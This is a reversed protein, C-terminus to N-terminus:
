AQRKKFHSMVALGLGILVAALLAFSVAGMTPVGTAEFLVFAQDVGTNIWDTGPVTTSFVADFIGNIPDLDGVEWFAQDTEGTTNTFLEIWYTGADLAVPSLILDFEYEQVGFLVVGTPTATPTGTQSSIMAGPLGGSDTHFMVTYDWNAFSDGPFYGGWWMVEGVDAAAALVFNDAISQAGTPCAGCDGDNFLGNSANPPQSILVGDGEPASGTQPPNDTPSLKEQAVLPVAVLALMMSLVCLARVLSHKPM